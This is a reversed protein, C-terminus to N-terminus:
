LPARMPPPAARAHERQFAILHERAKRRAILRRWWPVSAVGLGYLLHEIAWAGRTMPIRERLVPDLAPTLVFTAMLLVAIGFLVGTLFVSGRPPERGVLAAFAIGLLASVSVHLVVGLGVPLAGGLLAEVGLFTAGFLAFPASAGQGNVLAAIIAWGAMLAGGLLGAAVGAEVTAGLDLDIALERQSESLEM